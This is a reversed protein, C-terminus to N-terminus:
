DQDTLSDLKAQCLELLKSARINSNELTTDVTTPRNTNTDSANTVHSTTAGTSGNFHLEVEKSAGPQYRATPGSEDEGRRCHGLGSWVFAFVHMRWLALVFTVVGILSAALILVHKVTSKFLSFSKLSSLFEKSEPYQLDGIIESDLSVSIGDIEDSHKRVKRHIVKIDRPSFNNFIRYDVKSGRSVLHAEFIKLTRDVTGLTKEMPFLKVQAGFGMCFKPLSFVNFPPLLVKRFCRCPCTMALELSDHMAIYWQLEMLAQVYPLHRESFRVSCFKRINNSNEEYLAFLCSEVHDIAVMHTLASCFCGAAYTCDDYEAKTLDKFYGGSIAMYKTQLDYQAFIERDTNDTANRSLPVPIDYARILSVPTDQDALPIRIVLHIEHEHLIVTTVSYKYVHWINFDNEFSLQLNIPIKKIIEDLVSMIDEPNVLTPTIRGQIMVSFIDRLRTIQSHFVTECETLRDLLYDVHLLVYTIGNQELLSTLADNIVFLRTQFGVLSTRLKDLEGQHKKLVVHTLNLSGALKRTDNVLSNHSNKLLNLNNVLNKYDDVAPYALFLRSFTLLM